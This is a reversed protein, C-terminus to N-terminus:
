REHWSPKRRELFASVGEQGEQSVRLRALLEATSAVMADFDVNGQVTRVLRKAEKAATPGARLILQIQQELTQDLQAAASVIHVLGIARATHADFSEGTVFWRRSQRAGMAAVVYPSITAPVLGLRVESLAFQATDVAIAVDACSILGIGGGFTNGNVKAIVPRDFENLLRLCEALARADERNEAESASLMSRMHVLDAGACFSQGAGTVVLARLDARQRLSQLADHLETITQGDLANHKEPRNLTLTAIGRADISQTLM